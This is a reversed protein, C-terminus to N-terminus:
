YFRGAACCVGLSEYVDHFRAQCKFVIYLVSAAKSVMHRRVQLARPLVHVRSASLSLTSSVEETFKFGERPDDPVGQCELSTLEQLKSLQLLETTAGEPLVLSLQVLGTLQCLMPLDELPMTLLTGVTNSISSARWCLTRLGSLEQLAALLEASYQLSGVDLSQLGPCCSVLRRGEPAPSPSGDPAKVWNLKLSRLHPLQRGAPFVHQWVGAPLTCGHLDLHRLKSSATLASFAAAPPSGEWKSLGMDLHTLQQLPQLYSLLQAAGAAGGKITCWGVQLHQLLSKGALVEPEVLLGEDANMGSTQLHTLSHMGSLMSALVTPTGEHEYPSLRLDQLRTLAQLPQLASQGQDAGQV